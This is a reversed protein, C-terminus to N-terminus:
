RFILFFMMGLLFDLVFIARSIKLLKVGFTNKLMSEAALFVGGLIFGVVPLLVSILTLLGEGMVDSHYAAATATKDAVVSLPSTCNECIQANSPFTQGCKRCIKRYSIM